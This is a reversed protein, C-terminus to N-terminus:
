GINHAAVFVRARSTDKVYAEARITDAVTSFLAHVIAALDLVTFSRKVGM